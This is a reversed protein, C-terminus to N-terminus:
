GISALRSTTGCCRRPRASSRCRRTMGATSTWRRTRMACAPGLGAKPRIPRRSRHGPPPGAGCDSASAGLHRDPGYQPGQCQAHDRDQRGEEEARYGREPPYEGTLAETAKTVAEAPPLLRGVVFLARVKELVNMGAVGGHHLPTIWPPVHCNELIWDKTSKYVIVGVPAGGYEVAKALLAAWMRHAAEERKGLDEDEGSIAINDMSLSRDVCQFVRVSAPRPLQEWEEVECKLHPWIYRLLTADATADTILIPIGEWGKAVDRIGMVHIFREDEEGHRIKVRGPSGLQEWM